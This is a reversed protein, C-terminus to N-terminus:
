GELDRVDFYRSTATYRNEHGVILRRILVEKLLRAFFDLRGLTVSFLRLALLRGATMRM